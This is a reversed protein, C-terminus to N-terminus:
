SYTTQIKTNQMIYTVGLTDVGGWSLAGFEYKILGFTDLESFRANKLASLMQEPIQDIIDMVTSYDRPLDKRAVHLEIVVSHLGKMLGPPGGQYNGRVPYVVAFPFQSNSEPPEDPVRRLDSIKRLEDVIEQAADKLAM